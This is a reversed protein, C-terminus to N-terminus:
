FFYEIRGFLTSADTDREIDKGRFYAAKVLVNEMPVYQVGMDFGKQGYSIADYTPTVVAIDGLSRYALFAGFTGKQAPVAKKYDFEVSWARRLESITDGETDRSYNAYASVVPSFRWGLGVQWIKAADANVNTFYHYLTSNGIYYYGAGATFRKGADYLLEISRYNGTTSFTPQDQNYRGATLTTKLVNGFTVQGGSLETDMIMGQSPQSFCPIKGLKVTLNGYNGQAWIRKLTTDQTTKDSSMDVTSDIRAKVQWHDNVEATPELRLLLNNKNVRDTYDHRVSSYTYRAEGNFKVKDANRELNAVRVGLNNLEDAFEASLKDIMAKDTSSVNTKAMAKAVMQAMEYRTINHEGQYTGDGYGDIVGDKALQAVADYAWHDQPVDSFPNAAAAAVQFSGAAMIAALACVMSKRM